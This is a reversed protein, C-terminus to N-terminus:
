KKLKDKSRSKARKSLANIITKYAEVREKAQGTYENDKPFYIQEFTRGGLSRAVEELKRRLTREQQQPSVTTVKMGTLTSLAKASPSKRPDTLQRVTTTVRSTPLMGNLGEVAWDGPYRVADKSGTVNALIRGITPDLDDIPRGGGPEKFFLSRGTGLEIAKQAIPNLRSLVEGTVNQASPQMFQLADEHMLGLSTLYQKTGDNSKYFPDPISATDAIHDPTTGSRDRAANQLRIVNALGGGPNTALEKGTHRLMRSTYSYFPILNKLARETATFTRPDYNVQVDNIRKMAAEATYGQKKMSIFPAMRNMTDTYEGLLDSTAFPAFTMEDAGNVGRFKAKFPNWTSGGERGMLTKAVQKSKAGTTSKEVGPVQRLIHDIDSRPSQITSGTIDTHKFVDGPGNEAYLYRLAQTATEDNLKLGQSAVWQQIEPDHTLGKIAKGLYVKHAQMLDLPHALGHIANQIQGGIIDRVHRAPHSLVGAKFMNMYSKYWRSMVEEANTGRRKDFLGLMDKAVDMPVNQRLVAAVSDKTVDVGNETLLVGSSVVPDLKLTKLIKAISVMGEETNPGVKPAKIGKWSEVIDPTVSTAAASRQLDQPLFQSLVSNMGKISARRDTRHTMNIYLDVLPHNAYMGNKATEQSSKYVRRALLPIRDVDKIEKGRKVKITPDFADKFRSNIETQLQEIVAKDHRAIDDSNKLLKRAEIGSDAIERLKSDTLFKNVGSTGEKWGKFLDLRKRDKSSNGAFIAGPREIGDVKTIRKYRPFYKAYPDDLRAGSRGSYADLIRQQELDKWITEKLDSPLENTIGEFERRLKDSDTFGLTKLRAAIDLQQKKAAKRGAMQEPYVINEAAEQVPKTMRGMSSAKLASAAVRGPASYRVAGYAKDIADGIKAAKEGTGLAWESGKVFPIKGTMLGREGARIGAGVGKTLAEGRKLMGAAKGTKGLFGFGLLTLPDTLIETAMGGAFNGWTDEKGALGYQRALDRGTIRHKDSTWNGPIWQDFPNNGALIDRVSSGPLDLVNGVAGVTGLAAGGLSKIIGPDLEPSDEQPKRKKQRPMRLPLSMNFNQM